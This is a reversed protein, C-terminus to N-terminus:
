WLEKSKLPLVGPPVQRWADIKGDYIRGETTAEMTGLITTIKCEGTYNGDEDIKGNTIPATSNLVTFEGDFTGDGNRTIAVTCPKRGIPLKIVAEYTEEM